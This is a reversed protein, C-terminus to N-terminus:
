SLEYKPAALRSKAHTAAPRSSPEAAFQSPPEAAMEAPQADPEEEAAGEGDAPEGERRRRGGRRGRRRRPRDDEGEAAVTTLPSAQRLLSNGAAVGTRKLGFDFALFSQVPGNAGTM